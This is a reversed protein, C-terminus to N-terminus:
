NENKVWNQYSICESLKTPDQKASGNLGQFFSALVDDKKVVELLDGTLIVDAKLDRDGVTTVEGGALILGTFDNEVTVNGGAILLGTFNGKVTVNGGYIYIGKAVTEDLQYNNISNPEVHIRVGSETKDVPAAAKVKDFDIIREAVLPDKKDNGSLRMSTTTESALLSLQRSVYEKGIKNGDKLLAENVNGADDYYSQATTDSNNADPVISSGNADYYNHIINGAILFLNPSLKMGSDDTTSIYTTAREELDEKHNVTDGDEDQEEGEYYHRFYENASKADKFNLYFYTYMHVNNYNKTYPEDPDLYQAIDSDAGLLKAKDVTMNEGDAVPNHGAMIYETPLLYAIQNSKVALSEGMMIDSVASTGNEKNRSVFTRGALILKDLNDTKLTTNLGNVLIASSYTSLLKESSSADNEKNYSYGYYKGSISVISNNDSINLDNAIYANENMSFNTSLASGSGSNQEKLNIDSLWLDGAGSEGSLSVNAGTMIDLSGRSIIIPSNFTAKKQTEVKIGTEENGTYVNGTFTTGTALSNTSVTLADDSIVIYDKIADLISDGEFKYDPVRIVIDAQIRSRYDSADTYDILLNKLTLSYGTTTDFNIVFGPDLNVGGVSVTTVADPITSLKKVRDLECAQFVGLKNEDWVYSTGKLKEAILSLYEKAFTEKMTSKSKTYNDLINDYATKSAEGAYELLGTRVESLIGETQYFNDTSNSDVYVTVVYRTAVTLITLGIAALFVVGIIVSIMSAGEKRGKLKSFLRNM